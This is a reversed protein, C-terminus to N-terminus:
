GVHATSTTHAASVPIPLDPLTVCDGLVAGAFALCAFIKFVKKM